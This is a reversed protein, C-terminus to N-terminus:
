GFLYCIDRWKNVTLFNIALLKIDPTLINYLFVNCSIIYTTVAFRIHTARAMGQGVHLIDM